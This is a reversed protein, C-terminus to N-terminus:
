LGSSWTKMGLRSKSRSSASIGTDRRLCLALDDNGAPITLILRDGAADIAEWEYTQAFEDFAVAGFKAPALLAPQPQSARHLGTGIRTRLDRRLDAWVTHCAGAEMLQGGGKLRASVKAPKPLTLAISHDIAVLPEPLHIASGMLQEGTATSSFPLRYATKPDFSPDQGAARASTASHWNKTEPCFGYLTLGRAGEPIHGSYAAGITCFQM